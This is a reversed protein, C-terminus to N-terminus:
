RKYYTVTNIVIRNGRDYPVAIHETQQTGFDMLAEALPKADIAFQTASDAARTANLAFACLIGSLIAHRISPINM